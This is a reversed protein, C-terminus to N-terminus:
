NIFRISAPYKWTENDSAKIAAYICLVINLIGLIVLLVIGIVVIILIASVITYIVLSIQWNLAEKANEKAFSDEAVLYIILSGVFSTFLGLIHAIVALAKGSDDKKAGVAKKPKAKVAM